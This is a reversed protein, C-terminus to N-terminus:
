EDGTLDVVMVEETLDIVEIGNEIKRRYQVQMPANRSTGGDDADASTDSTVSAHMVVMPLEHRQDIPRHLRPGAHIQPRRRRRRRHTQTPQSDSGDHQVPVNHPRRDDPGSTSSTSEANNGARFGTQVRRIATQASNRRHQHRQPSNAIADEPVTPRGPLPLTAFTINLRAFNQLRMPDHNPDRNPQGGDIIANEFDMVRLANERQAGTLPRHGETGGKVEATTPVDEGDFAVSDGSTM